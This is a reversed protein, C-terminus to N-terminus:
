KAPKKTKSKKLPKPPPASAIAKLKADFAEEDDDCGLSRATEAFRSSQSIRKKDRDSM